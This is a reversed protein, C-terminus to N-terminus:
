SVLIPLGESEVAWSELNRPDQPTRAQILRSYRICKRTSKRTRSDSGMCLIWPIWPPQDM